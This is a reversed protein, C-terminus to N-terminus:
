ASKEIADELTRLFINVQQEMLGSRERSLADHEGHAAQNRVGAMQEVDKIDQKSLIGKSRLKSAYANISPRGSVSLGVEEVASRLAVELAAGALVIPAAPTVTDDSNLTRVQEMLDTSAIVRVGLTEVTRPKAQGSRVAVIWENIIDSIAHVGNEMRGICGQEFESHAAQAWRSDLGTFRELFALASNARARIRSELQPHRAVWYGGRGDSYMQWILDTTLEEALGEAWELIQETPEM